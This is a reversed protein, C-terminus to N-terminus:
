ILGFHKEILKQVDTISSEKTREIMYFGSERMMKCELENTLELSQFINEFYIESLEQSKVYEFFERKEPRNFYTNRILSKEVTLFVLQNYNIINQTYDPTYLVDAIVKQKESLKILDLLVM